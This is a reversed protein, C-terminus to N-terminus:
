TVAKMTTCKRKQLKRGIGLRDRGRQMRRTQRGQRSPTSFDTEQPTGSDPVGALQDAGALPWRRHDLISPTDRAVTRHAKAARSAAIPAQLLSRLALRSWRACGRLGAPPSPVLHVAPRRGATDLTDAHRVLDAALARAIPATMAYFRGIEADDPAQMQHSLFHMRLM